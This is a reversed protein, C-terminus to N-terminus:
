RADYSRADHVGEGHCKEGKQSDIERRLHESATEITWSGPQPSPIHQQEINEAPRHRLLAKLTEGSVFHLLFASVVNSCQHDIVGLVNTAIDAKRTRYRPKQDSSPTVRISTGDLAGLCGKFSRGVNDVCAHLLLNTANSAFEFTVANSPVALEKIFGSSKKRKVVADRILNQKAQKDTHKKAFAHAEDSMKEIHINIDHTLIKTAFRLRM